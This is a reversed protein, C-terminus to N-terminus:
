PRRPSNLPLLAGGSWMDIKPSHTSDVGDGAQYVRDVMVEPYEKEYYYVKKNTWLITKLEFHYKKFLIDL